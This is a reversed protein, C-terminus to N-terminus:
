GEKSIESLYEKFVENFDSNVQLQLHKSIVTEGSSYELVEIFAANTEWLTILGIFKEPSYHHVTVSPNDSITSDVVNIEETEIGKAQLQEKVEDIWYQFSDLM